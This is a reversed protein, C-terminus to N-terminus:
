TCSCHGTDPDGPGPFPQYFNRECIETPTCSRTGPENVKHCCCCGNNPRCCAAGCNGVGNGIALCHALTAAEVPRPAAVSVILPASAVVAGTKAANVMLQRRTSGTPAGAALQEATEILECSVLEDLAQGIVESDRGLAAALSDIHTHGDCRRWVEAATPSLCHARHRVLDYVLLEGDNEEVVLDTSRATPREPDLFPKSGGNESLLM